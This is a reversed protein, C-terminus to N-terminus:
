VNFSSAEREEKVNEPKVHRADLAKTSRV